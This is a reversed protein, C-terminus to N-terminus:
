VLHNQQIKKINTLENKVFLDLKVIKYIIKKQKEKNDSENFFYYVCSKINNIVM